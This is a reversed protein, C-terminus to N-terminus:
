DPSLQGAFWAKAFKWNEYSRTRSLGLLEGAETVSLGAFLRMKVLEATEPDIADLAELADSVAVLEEGDAGNTAIFDDVEVRRAGAGRKASLKRRASDVLIRRMAESAAAFFHGRNEWVQQEEPDVLRLFAEHVLATAQITHGPAEARMKAAAIKRLEDYVVRFLESTGSGKDEPSTQLIETLRPM